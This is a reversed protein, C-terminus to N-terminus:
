FFATAHELALLICLLIKVPFFFFRMLGAVTLNVCNCKMKPICISVVLMGIDRSYEVVADNPKKVALVSSRFESVTNM